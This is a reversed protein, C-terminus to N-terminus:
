EFKDVRAPDRDSLVSCWFTCQSWIVYGEIPKNDATPFCQAGSPANFGIGGITGIMSNDLQFASLVLLHMSVTKGIERAERSFVLRFASLVLLHMSVPIPDRAIGFSAHPRFASLVLLHM